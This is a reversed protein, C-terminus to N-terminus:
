ILFKAMKYMARLAVLSSEKQINKPKWGNKLVSAVKYMIGICVVLKKKSTRPNGAM